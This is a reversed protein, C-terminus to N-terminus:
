LQTAGTLDFAILFFRFGELKFDLAASTKDGNECEINYVLRLRREGNPASASVLSGDTEFKSGVFSPKGKLAGASQHLLAAMQRMESEPLLDRADVHLLAYAEDPKDGLLAELFAEAEKQYVAVKELKEYWNPAIEDSLIEFRNIGGEALELELSADQKAGKLPASVVQRVQGEVTTQVVQVLKADPITMDGMADYVANVWLQLVANDTHEALASNLLRRVAAADKQNVAAVFAAAPNTDRNQFVYMAGGGFLALMFAGAVSVSTMKGFVGAGKAITQVGVRQMKM